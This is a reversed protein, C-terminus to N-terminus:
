NAKFLSFVMTHTLRAEDPDWRTREKRGSRLEVAKASSCALNMKEEESLRDDQVLSDRPAIHRLSPQQQYLSATPTALEFQLSIQRQKMQAQQPPPITLDVSSPGRM